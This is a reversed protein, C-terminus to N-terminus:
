QPAASPQPPALDARPVQRNNRLCERVYEDRKTAGEATYDPYWKFSSRTCNDATQWQRNTGNLRNDARAGPAALLMLVAVIGAALRIPTSLESIM